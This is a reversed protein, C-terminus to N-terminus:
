RIMEKARKLGLRQKKTITGLRHREELFRWAWSAAEKASSENFVVGARKGKFCELVGNRIARYVTVRSIGFRVSVANISLYEAEGSESM